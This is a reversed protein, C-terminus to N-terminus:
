GRSKQATEFSQPAQRHAQRVATKNVPRKPSQLTAGDQRPVSQTLGERGSTASRPVLFLIMMSIILVDCAQKIVAGTLDLWRDAARRGNAITSPRRRTAADNVFSLASVRYGGSCGQISLRNTESDAEVASAARARRRTAPTHGQPIQSAVTVIKARNAMMVTAPAM